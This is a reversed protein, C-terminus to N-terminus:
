NYADEQDGSVGELKEEVNLGWEEGFIGINDRLAVMFLNVNRNIETVWEELRLFRVETPDHPKNVSEDGM